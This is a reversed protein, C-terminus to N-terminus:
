ARNSSSSAGSKAALEKLEHLKSLAERPSLDNLNLATLADVIKQTEPEFLTLQLDRTSNSIPASPQTQSRLTEFEPLLESARGIVRLPLGALKAVEIGYSKDCGGPVIRHLFVIRDGWEEVEVRYNRICEFVEAMRNLEHYHTAFLTKAHLGPVEHLYETVAWALAMGDYTSTGRGVEDLLILSRPTANRLINAVETMEVLFTSEGGALNDGAGVRTFVRDVVGIRARKAPVFSGVQAMLVCLAIQRLFTSKGAMNPGTLIMIRFAQGDMALDNPVFGQGPALLSEVVPHRCEMLELDLGEHVEPRVYDKERAVQALSVYVDLEALARAIELIRASHSAIESRIRGWIEAELQGIKEEASLIKEEWTKLEPTVYRESSVLTQKRTYNAPVRSKHANTIEIYYGFVKNYSIKLSPIGTRAREAEQHELIWKRAGSQLQRLEDLDRSFGERIAGGASLQAPPEEVLARSLFEVLDPMPALTAMIEQLPAIPFAGFLEEFQPLRALVQKLLVADRPSGRGAVLRGLLRELDGIGSLTEVLKQRLRDESFLFEVRDLRQHIMEADALPQLLWRRLLRSGPLSRTRNLVALLTARKNDGSLSEVIELNRRTTADLVLDKESRFVQLNPLIPAEEGLNSRTYYLLAGAAAVALELDQMGFGKLTLVDFHRRLTSEAAEKTFRWDPLAMFATEMGQLLSAIEERQGSACLIESPELAAVRAALQERPLLGTFFEGTTVDAYSLGAKEKDLYISTLYNNKGADLVKESFTTGASVVETVSRKVIGRALKPDEVQDCVAVRYGARTMKALYHELQHHPFGALPVKAAKGHARSTLTLGLVESGLKADEYFLEYFDGMRYFLIVDPYKAKIEHYQELLPTSNRM